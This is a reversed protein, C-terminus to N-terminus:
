STKHLRQLPVQKKRYMGPHLFPICTHGTRESIMPIHTAPSKFMVSSSILPYLYFLFGTIFETFFIITDEQFDPIRIYFCTTLFNPPM